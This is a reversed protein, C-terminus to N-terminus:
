ACEPLLLRNTGELCTVFCVMERDHHPLSLRTGILEQPESAGFPDWRQMTTCARYWLQPLIDGLVGRGILVANEGFEREGAGPDRPARDKGAAIAVNRNNVRGRREDQNMLGM